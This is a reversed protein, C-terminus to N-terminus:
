GDTPHMKIKTKNTSRKETKKPGQSYTNKTHSTSDAALAYCNQAGLRTEGVGMVRSRLHSPPLWRQGEIGQLGSEALLVYRFELPGVVVCFHFCVFRGASCSKWSRTSLMPHSPAIPPAHAHAHRSHHLAIVNGTWRGDCKGTLARPENHLSRGLFFAQSHDMYEVTCGEGSELGTALTWRGARSITLHWSAFSTIVNLSRQFENM